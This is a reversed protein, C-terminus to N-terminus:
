LAYVNWNDRQITAYLENKNSPTYKRIKITASKTSTIIQSKWCAVANFQFSAHSKVVHGAPM